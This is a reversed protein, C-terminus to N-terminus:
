SRTALDGDFIDVAALPRLQAARWRFKWEVLRGMDGQTLMQKMRLRGPWEAESRRCGFNADDDLWGQDAPHRNLWLALYEPFSMPALAVGLPRIPRRKETLVTRARGPDIDFRGLVLTDAPRCRRYMRCQEGGIPGHGAVVRLRFRFEALDSAVQSDRVREPHLVSM